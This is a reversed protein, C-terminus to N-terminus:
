NTNFPYETTFRAQLAARAKVDGPQRCYVLLDNAFTLLPKTDVIVRDFEGAVASLQDVMSTASKNAIVSCLRDNDDLKFLSAYLPDFAAVFPDEETSVPTSGGGSSGTPSTSPTPSTTPTPTPTTKPPVVVTTPTVVPKVVPTVVKTPLPTVTTPKEIRLKTADLRIKLTDLSTPPVLGTKPDVKVDTDSGAVLQVLFDKKSPTLEVYKDILDNRELWTKITLDNKTPEVPPVTGQPKSTDVTATMGLTVSVPKGSALPTSTSTPQTDDFRTVTVVHETVSVKTKKAKPNYSVAFKTGRVAALTGPTRVEYEAGAQLKQVRHYTDGISQLITTKNGTFTIEIETNESVSMMSNDPFVVHALGDETKVYFGNDIPMQNETMLQYSSATDKKFYVKGSEKFLYMGSAQAVPIVNNQTNTTNKPVVVYAAGGLATVVLLGLVIKVLNTM